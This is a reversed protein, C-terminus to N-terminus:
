IQHQNFHLIIEGRISCTEKKAVNNAKWNLHTIITPVVLVQKQIIHPWETNVTSIGKIAKQEQSFILLSM